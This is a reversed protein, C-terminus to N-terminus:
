FQQYVISGSDTFGVFQTHHELFEQIYAIGADPSLRDENMMYGYYDIIESVTSEMFDCCIALLDFEISEGTSDEFEEFYDFLLNLAERSFNNKYTDSQLFESVFEDRYVTKKM